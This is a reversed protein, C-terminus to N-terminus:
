IGKWTRGIADVAVWGPFTFLVGAGVTHANATPLMLALTPGIDGYRPDEMTVLTATHVLHLFQGAPAWVGFCRDTDEGSEHVCHTNSMTVTAPTGILRHAYKWISIPVGRPLDAAV